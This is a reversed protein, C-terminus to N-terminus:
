AAELFYPHIDLGAKSLVLRIWDSDVDCVSAQPIDAQSLFSKASNIEHRDLKIDVLDLIAREIIGFMLRQEIQSLDFQTKIKLNAAKALKFAEKAEKKM